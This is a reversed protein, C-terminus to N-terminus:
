NQGTSFSETPLFICLYTNIKYRAYVLGFITLLNLNKLCKSAIKKFYSMKEYSPLLAKEFYKSIIVDLIQFFRLACYEGNDVMKM